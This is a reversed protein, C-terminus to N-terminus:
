QDLGERPIDGRRDVPNEQKGEIVTFEPRESPVNREQNGALARNLRNIEKEKTQLDVRLAHAEKELVNVIRFAAEMAEKWKGHMEREERAQAELVAIQDKLSTIEDLMSSERATAPAPDASREEVTDLFEDKLDEYDRYLRGRSIEAEIALQVGSLRGPEAHRPQGSLLRNAAERIAQEVEPTRKGLPIM